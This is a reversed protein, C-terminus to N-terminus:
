DKKVTLEKQMEALKSLLGVVIPADTGKIQAVNVLAILNTIDELTLM